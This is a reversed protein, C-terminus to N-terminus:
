KLYTIKITEGNANTKPLNAAYNCEAESGNIKFEKLKYMEEFSSSDWRFDKAPLTIIELSSSAFATSNAYTLNKFEVEKINTCGEFSQDNINKIGDTGEIKELAKLNYFTMLFDFNMNNLNITKITNNDNGSINFNIHKRDQGEETKSLIDLLNLTTTTTDFTVFESEESGLTLKCASIINSVNINEDKGAYYLSFQSYESQGDYDKDNKDALDLQFIWDTKVYDKLKGNLQKEDKDYAQCNFIGNGVEEAKIYIKDPIDESPNSSTTTKTINGNTDVKYTNGTANFTVTWGGTADGTVMAGEVTLQANANNTLAMKRAAVGLKIKEMEEQEAYKNTATKSHSIVNHSTILKISVVALIM